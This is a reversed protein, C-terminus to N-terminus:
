FGAFCYRQRAAWRRLPDRLPTHFPGLTVNGVAAGFQVPHTLDAAGVACDTGTGTVLKLTQALSALWVDRWITWFRAQAAAIAEALDERRRFLLWAFPVLQL